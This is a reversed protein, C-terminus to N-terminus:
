PVNKAKAADLIGQLETHLDARQEMLEKEKSM